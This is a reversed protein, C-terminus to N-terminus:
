LLDNMTHDELAEFAEHSAGKGTIIYFSGEERRHGGIAMAISLHESIRALSIREETDTM